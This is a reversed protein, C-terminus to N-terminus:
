NSKCLKIPHFCDSPRILIKVKERGILSFFSCFLNEPRERIDVRSLFRDSFEFPPSRFPPLAAQQASFDFTENRDSRNYKCINKTQTLLEFSSFANPLM